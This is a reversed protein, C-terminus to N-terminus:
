PSSDSAIQDSSPIMTWRGSASSAGPSSSTIISGSSSSSRTTPSSPPERMTRRASGRSRRGRAASGARTDRPAPRRQPLLPQLRLRQELDRPAVRLERDHELGVALDQAVHEVQRAQVVQQRLQVAALERQDLDLRLGSRRERGRQQEVVDRGVHVLAVLGVRLAARRRQRQVALQQALQQPLFLQALQDVRARQLRDLGVQLPQGLARARVGDVRQVVHQSADAVERHVLRLQAAPRDAHSRAAARRAAPSRAAPRRRSASARPRPRRAQVAVREAGDRGGPQGLREDGVHRVRHLPEHAAIRARVPRELRARQALAVADIERRHQLPQLRAPMQHAALQPGTPVARSHHSGSTSRRSRRADSAASRASISGASWRANARKWADQCPTSRWGGVPAPTSRSRSISTGSCPRASGSSTHSRSTSGRRM